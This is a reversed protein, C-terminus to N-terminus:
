KMANSCIDSYNYQYATVEGLGSIINTTKILEEEVVPLEFNNVLDFSRYIKNGTKKSKTKM